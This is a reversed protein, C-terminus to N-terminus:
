NTADVVDEDLNKERIKKAVLRRNLGRVSRLRTQLKNREQTLRKVHRDMANLRRRAQRPAGDRVEMGKSYTPLSM